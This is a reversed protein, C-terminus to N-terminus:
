SALSPRIAASAHVLLPLVGAAVAWILLGAGDLVVLGYVNFRGTQRVLCKAALVGTLGLLVGVSVRFSDMSASVSHFFLNWVVLAHDSLPQLLVLVSLCTIDSCVSNLFRVERKNDRGRKRHLDRNRQTTRWLM